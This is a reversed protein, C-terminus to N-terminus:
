EHNQEKKEIAQNNQVVESQVVQANARDILGQNQQMQHRIRDLVLVPLKEDNLTVAVPMKSHVYPMAATASQITMAVARAGAASRVMKKLQEHKMSYIEALADAPDRHGLADRLQEPIGVSRKNKSGKPRPM